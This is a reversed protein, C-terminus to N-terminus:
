IPNLEYGPNTYVQPEKGNNRAEAYETPYIEELTLSDDTTSGVPEWTKKSYNYKKTEDLNYLPLRFKCFEYTGLGPHDEPCLVHVYKDYYKALEDTSAPGLVYEYSNVTNNYLRSQSRVISTENDIIYKMPTTPVEPKDYQPDITLYILGYGILCELEGKTDPYSKILVRKINQNYILPAKSTYVNELNYDNGDKFKTTFPSALLNASNALPKYTVGNYNTDFGTGNIQLSIGNFTVPNGYPDGACIGLLPLNHKISDDHIDTFTFIVESTGIIKNSGQSGSNRNFKIVDEDVYLLPFGEYMPPQNYDDFKFLDAKIPNSQAFYVYGTKITLKALADKKSASLKDMYQKYNILKNDLIGMLHSGGFYANRDKILKLSTDSDIYTDKDVFTKTKPDYKKTGDMNYIEFLRLIGGLNADENMKSINYPDDETRIQVNGAPMISQGPIDVYVAEALGNYYETIGNYSVNFEPLKIIHADIDNNFNYYTADTSEYGNHGAMEIISFVSDLDIVLERCTIDVNRGKSSLSFHFKEANIKTILTDQEEGDKKYYLNTNFNPFVFEGVNLTDGSMNSKDLHINVSYLNTIEQAILRKSVYTKYLPKLITNYIDTTPKATKVVLDVASKSRYLDDAVEASPFDISVTKGAPIIYEDAALLVSNVSNLDTSDTNYIFGGALTNKGNNFGELITSKKIGTPVKNIETALTSTSNSEPPVNNSKLAEKASKIDEHIAELTQIIQNSTDPM